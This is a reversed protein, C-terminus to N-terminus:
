SQKVMISFLDKVLLIKDLIVCSIYQCMYQCPPEFYRRQPVLPTVVAICCSYM